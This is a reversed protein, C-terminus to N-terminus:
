KYRKYVYIRAIVYGIIVPFLLRASPDAEGGAFLGIGASGLQDAAVIGVIGLGLGLAMAETEMRRVLEDSKLIWRYIGWVFAAGLLAVVAIAPVLEIPESLTGNRIARGLALESFAWVGGLANAIWLAKRQASISGGAFFNREVHVQLMVTVLLVAGIIVWHISTM